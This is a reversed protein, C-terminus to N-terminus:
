QYLMNQFKYYPKDKLILDGLGIITPDDAITKQLWSENLIPHNRLSIKEPKILNINNMGLM